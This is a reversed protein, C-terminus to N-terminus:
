VRVAWVLMGLLLGAGALLVLLTLGGILMEARQRKEPAPRTIQFAQLFVETLISLLKM